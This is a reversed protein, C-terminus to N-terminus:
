CHVERAHLECRRHESGDPDRESISWGGPVRDFVTYGYREDITGHVNEKIEQAASSLTDGGTGVIIEPAAGAFSFAAFLHVHGSVIAALHSGNPDSAAHAALYALPPRHTLLM